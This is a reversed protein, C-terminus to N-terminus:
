TLFPTALILYSTYEQRETYVQCVTERVKLLGCNNLPQLVAASYMPHSCVFGIKEDLANNFQKILVALLLTIYVTLASAPIM